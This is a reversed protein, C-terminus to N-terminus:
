SSPSHRSGPKPKASSAVPRAVNAALVNLLEAITALGEQAGRKSLTM